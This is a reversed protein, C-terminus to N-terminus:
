IMIIKLSAFKLNLNFKISSMYVIIIVAKRSTYVAWGSGRDTLSGRVIYYKFINLFTIYGAM